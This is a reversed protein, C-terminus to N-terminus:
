NGTGKAWLALQFPTKQNIVKLEIGTEGLHDFINNIEVSLLQTV